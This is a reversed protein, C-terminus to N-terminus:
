HDHIATWVIKTAGRAIRLTELVLQKRTLSIPFELNVINCNSDSRREYLNWDIM